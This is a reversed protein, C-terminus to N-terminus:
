ERISRVLYPIVRLVMGITGRQQFINVRFRGLGPAGYAMDVENFEQFRLKQQPSMMAHAIKTVQEPSIKPANNLPVLSGDIRFTPALGAKIHIDSANAKIAIKLIDNLEM